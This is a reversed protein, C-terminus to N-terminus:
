VVCKKLYFFVPFFNENKNNTIIYNFINDNM